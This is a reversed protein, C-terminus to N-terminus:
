SGEGMSAGASVFLKGAEQVVCGLMIANLSPEVPADVLVASDRRLGIFGWQQFASGQELYPLIGVLPSTSNNQWSVVPFKKLSSEYNHLTLSIQKLNNSCQMRMAAERAAQAAPRLLSVLISIVAMVVLLEVLTFAPRTSCSTHSM